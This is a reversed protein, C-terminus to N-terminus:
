MSGDKVRRREDDAAKAMWVMVTEDVASHARFQINRRAYQSDRRVSSRVCVGGDCSFLERPCFQVYFRPCVGWGVIASESCCPGKLGNDSSGGVWCSMSSLSRKIASNFACFFKSDGSSPFCLYATAAVRSRHSMPQCPASFIDKSLKLLERFLQHLNNASCLLKRGGNQIGGAALDKGITAVTQTDIARSGIDIRQHNRGLM